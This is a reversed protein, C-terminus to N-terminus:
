SPMKVEVIGLKIPTYCQIITGLGTFVRTILNYQTMFSAVHLLCNVYGSSKLPASRQQM